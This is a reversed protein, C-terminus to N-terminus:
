FSITKIGIVPIETGYEYTNKTVTYNEINTSKKPYLYDRASPYRQKAPAPLPLAWSQKRTIQSNVFNSNKLPPPPSLAGPSGRM